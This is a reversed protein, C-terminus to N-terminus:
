LAQGQMQRKAGAHSRVLCCAMCSQLWRESIFRSLVHAQKTRVRVGVLFNDQQMDYLVGALFRGRQTSADPPPWEASALLFSSGDLPAQDPGCM